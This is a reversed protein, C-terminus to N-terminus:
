QTKGLLFYLGTIFFVVGMIQLLKMAQQLGRAKQQMPDRQQPALGPSIQAHLVRLKRKLVTSAIVFDMVGSAMLGIGLINKYEMMMDPTTPM